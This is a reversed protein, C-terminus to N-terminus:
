LSDALTPDIRLLLDKFDNQIRALSAESEAEFRMTIAPGTNSARILGWGQRFEVRLGDINILAADAFNQNEAFTEVLAFKREDAVPILIEPSSILTRQSDLAEDMTLGSLTLIELLRAATYMGDDFGYWREKYFIHGSFEGGLLAGTDAMKQKMFSHGCKWMTPRGGADVILESLLRSCKIDFLIEAGPNRAVMDTALVMLLQDAAPSRGQATVIAVRDGDGDFAIGIDASHEAVAAKLASLNSEVTPDPAHNPFDGDIECFLPIVECGLEEFLTPAINSTAGNGADIVIKLTQAIVVDSIVRDIYRQEISDSDLRGNGTEFEQADIRHRLAQIDRSSLSKFELSIKMGNYHGPNHSGTIMIANGINLDQCAYHLMPTALLGLDTVDIGTSLLGKILADHIRPSSLRGDRGLLLKTQGRNLAESGVARGIAFCTNDNLETDAIGRIDYARFCNVALSAAKAPPKSEASHLEPLPPAGDPAPFNDRKPLNGQRSTALKKALAQELSPTPATKATPVNPTPKPAAPIQYSRVFFIAHSGAILAVCLVCILWLLTSDSSLSQVTIEQPYVQLTWGPVSLPRSQMADPYSIASPKIVSDRRAKYTQILEISVANGALSKLMKEFYQANFTVYVAGHKSVTKVFSILWQKEHKYAEIILSKKEISKRLMDIEINNRLRQTESREDAIGQKGIYIIKTDLAEPFARQLSQTFLSEDSINGQELAALLEPNATQKSVRDGLQDIVDRVIGRQHDAINSTVTDIRQHLARPEEVHQIWYFAGFVMGICLLASIVIDRQNASFRPARNRPPTKATPAKKKM